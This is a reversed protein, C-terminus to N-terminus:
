QAAAKMPEDEVTAASSSDPSPAADGHHIVRVQGSNALAGTWVRRGVHELEITPDVWVKGGMERWAMCFAYDESWYDDGRIGPNFLNFHRQGDTHKFGWDPHAEIMKEICRRAIMMFGTGVTEAEFCGTEADVAGNQIPRFCFSEKESKRPGAGGVVDYDHALLRLVDNPRWGMDADAFLLHTAKTENIFSWIISNRARQVMSEDPVTITWFFVGHQILAPVTYVLSKVYREDFQGGYAPTGIALARGELSVQKQKAGRLTAVRAYVADREEACWKEYRARDADMHAYGVSYTADRQNVDQFVHHHRVMVDLAKHWLHFTRGLDEWLDDCFCHWLGPPAWYGVARLLEGDVIWAGAMRREAQWGDNSTVVGRSPLRELLLTDWQPTEPTFDDNLLGYWALEPHTEFAWNLAGLFGLNSGTAVVTWNENPLPLDAPYSDRPGNIIVLGPTTVGTARCAELFARCREPRGFTPLLWM